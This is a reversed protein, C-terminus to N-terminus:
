AGGGNGPLIIGSPTAPRNLRKELQLKVAVLVGLDGNLFGARDVSPPMNYTVGHIVSACFEGLARAIDHPATGRDIESAVWFVVRGPDYTHVLRAIAGNYGPDSIFLLAANAPQATIKM